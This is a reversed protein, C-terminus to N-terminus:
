PKPKLLILLHFIADSNEGLGQIGEFPFNTPYVSGLYHPYSFSQVETNDKDNSKYPHGSTDLVTTFDFAQPFTIILKEGNVRLSGVMINVGNADKFMIQISQKFSSNLNTIGTTLGEIFFNNLGATFPPLVIVGNKSCAVPSSLILFASTFLYNKLDDIAPITFSIEHGPAEESGEDPNVIQDFPLPDSSIVQSYVPTKLSELWEEESGQFGNDQAIEYANKGDNGNSGNRGNKISFSDEYSTGDSKKFYITYTDTAGPQGPQGSLDTTGSFEVKEIDVSVGNSGTAGNPIGFTFKLHGPNGTDENVNATPQAGSSLSHATAEATVIIDVEDNINNIRNEIEDVDGEIDTINKEINTINNEINTVDTKIERISESMNSVNGQLEGVDEKIDNISKENKLIGEKLSKDEKELETLDREDLIRYNENAM